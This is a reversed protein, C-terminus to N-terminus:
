TGKVLIQDGEKVDEIPVTEDKGESTRRVVNTGYAYCAEVDVGGHGGTSSSGSSYYYWITEKTYSFSYSMRKYYDVCDKDYEIIGVNHLEGGLFDADTGTFTSEYHDEGTIGYFAEPSNDFNFEKYTLPEEGIMSGTTGMKLSYGRKTIFELGAVGLKRTYHIGVTEISDGHNVNLTKCEGYYSDTDGHSTLSM